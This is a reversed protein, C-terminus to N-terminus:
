TDWTLQEVHSAADDVLVGQRKADGDLTIDSFDVKDPLTKM